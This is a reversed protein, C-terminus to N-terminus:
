VIRRNREIFQERIRQLQRQVSADLITDELDLIFGGILSPKVEVEFIPEDGTKAKVLRAFRDMEEESAPRSLILHVKRKGISSYYMTIFNRLMDPLLSIRSNRMLLKVFHDMEMSIDGGLASRVLAEKKRDPLIDKSGVARAFEPVNDLAKVLTEAEKCVAEGGGTEQVYKLLATAYRTIVLSRNV